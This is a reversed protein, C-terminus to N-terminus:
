LLESPMVGHPAERQLPQWTYFDTCFGLAPRASLLLSPVHPHRCPPIRPPSATRGKVQTTVCKIVCLQCSLIDRLQLRLCCVIFKIHVISAPSPQFSYFRDVLTHLVAALEGVSTYTSGSTLTTIEFANLNGM